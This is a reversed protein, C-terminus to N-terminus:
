SYDCTMLWKPEQYEIGMLGCFKKLKDDWDAMMEVTRFFHLPNIILSSDERGHLHSATVAVFEDCDEVYGHTGMYCGSEKMVPHTKCGEWGPYDKGVRQFLAREWDYISYEPEGADDCPILNVGSGESSFGYIIDATAYRGM